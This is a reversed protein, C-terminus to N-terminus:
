YIKCVEFKTSLYRLKTIISSRVVIMVICMNNQMIISKCIGIKVDNM